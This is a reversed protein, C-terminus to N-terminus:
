LSTEAQHQAGKGYIKNRSYLTNLCQVYLWGEGVEGEEARQLESDSVPEVALTSFM